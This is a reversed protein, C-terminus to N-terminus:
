SPGHSAALTRRLLSLNGLELSFQTAKVVQIPTLLPAAFACLLAPLRRPAMAGAVALIAIGRARIGELGYRKTGFM